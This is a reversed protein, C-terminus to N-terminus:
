SRQRGNVDFHFSSGEDMALLNVPVVGPELLELGDFFRTVEAHSRLGVTAGRFDPAIQRAWAAQADPQIDSAPVSIALYSGAPGNPHPRRITFRESDVSPACRRRRSGARRPAPRDCDLAHRHGAL